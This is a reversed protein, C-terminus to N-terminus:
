KVCNKISLVGCKTARLQLPLKLVLFRLILRQDRGPFIANYASPLTITMERVPRLQIEKPLHVSVRFFIEIHAHDLPKETSNELIKEADISSGVVYWFMNWPVHYTGVFTAVDEQTRDLVKTSRKSVTTVERYYEPFIVAELCQVFTSIPNVKMSLETSITNKERELFTPSPVGQIRSLSSIAAPIHEQLIDWYFYATAESATYANATSYLLPSKEDKENGFDLITCELHEVLHAIEICPQNYSGQLVVLAIASLKSDRDLTYVATGDQTRGEYRVPKLSSFPDTM